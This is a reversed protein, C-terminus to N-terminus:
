LTRAVEETVYPEIVDGEKVDNFRELGIGCEYGQQVESVDDKFRRLSSLRGTYIVVSDRILRAESSRRISGDRVYCGAVTGVGPVHFTKRVEAHGRVVERKGPELIGELASKVEEIADYIVSYLRIDVKERKATEGAGPTPRVNFGAIIASSAAALMVDTETIGGVSSHLIRVGVEENGLKQLSERLAEISGQVDAKLIINLERLRGEKVRDLFSELSVRASTMLSALRQRQQRKGSIERALREDPVVLFTDGAEPVGAFGLVEAPTAPAAAKLKRGQDDLLARVKGHWKGAVFTDGVKLTGRQVLVTAVPGRGKDLKAEVVVGSAERDPNAKLEMLEAQLVALDLLDDIGVGQRASVPCYVTDGGWDEPILGLESLQQKIRDPNADPLDMKNVAVMIPVGAAKAHAIAERTQPMVGENAAVVLIVLDTVKAGRARMATFAEHGPTDLFVATGKETKVKYAGIHQTIGGAEQEMVNAKRIADLLRTKGHDVHGMITIVPARPRLSGPPDDGQVLVEEINEKSIEVEYGFKESLTSATAHDIMQNITTMQGMKMLEKIVETAKLSLKDALDKVTITEPVRVRGRRQPKAPPAPPAAPAREEAKPPAPAKAAPAAPKAPPAPKPPAAPAAPAAAKPAAPAKAAPAPAKGKAEKPAEATKGTAPAPAKAAPAAAKAKEETRSGFLTRILDATEEDVTSMYSKVQIGERHLEDVFAKNEFGLEKALEYVRIKAM